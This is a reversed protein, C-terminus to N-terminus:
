LFGAMTEGQVDRRPGARLASAGLLLELTCWVDAGAATVGDAYFRPMECTLGAARADDNLARARGGIEEYLGAPVRWPGFAYVDLVPEDSLLLELRDPLKPTGM